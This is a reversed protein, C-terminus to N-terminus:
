QRGADSRVCFATVRCALVANHQKWAVDKSCNLAGDARLLPGSLLVQVYVGEIHVQVDFCHAHKDLLDEVVVPYETLVAPRVRTGAEDGSFSGGSDLSRCESNCELDVHVRKGVETGM